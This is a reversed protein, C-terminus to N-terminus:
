QFDPGFVISRRRWLISFTFHFNCFNLSFFQLFGLRGDRSAGRQQEAPINIPASLLLTGISNEESLRQEMEDMHGRFRPKPRTEAAKAKDRAVRKRAHGGRTRGDSDTRTSRADRSKLKFNLKFNRSLKPLLNGQIWIEEFRIKDKCEGEKINIRMRCANLTSYFDIGERKKTNVVKASPLQVKASPSPCPSKPKM